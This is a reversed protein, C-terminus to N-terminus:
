YTSTVKLLNEIEKELERRPKHTKIQLKDLLQEEKGQTYALDSETLQPYKEKLKNKIQTWNEKLPLKSAMLKGERM